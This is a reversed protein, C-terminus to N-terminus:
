TIGQMRRGARCCGSCRPPDQTSHAAPTHSLSSSRALLGCRPSPREAASPCPKLPFRRRSAGAPSVCGCPHSPGWLGACGRGVCCHHRPWPTRLAWTRGVSQLPPDCNLSLASNLNQLTILHRWRSGQLEGSSRCTVAQIDLTTFACILCCYSCM